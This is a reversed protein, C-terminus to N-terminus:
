CIGLKCNIRWKAGGMGTPGIMLTVWYIKRGRLKIVESSVYATAKVTPKASGMVEVRNGTMVLCVLVLKDFRKRM